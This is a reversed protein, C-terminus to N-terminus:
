AADGGEHERLVDALSAVPKQRRELGLLADLGQATRILGQLQTLWRDRLKGRKDFLGRLELAADL